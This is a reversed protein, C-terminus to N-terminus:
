RETAFYILALAPFTLGVLSAETWGGHAFAIGSVLSGFAGGAFFVALYLGNLRGRAEPGLAFIERQGVVLNAAVGMDLILAAAVLLPWSTLLGGVLAIVFAAMGSTLALGTVRRTHGADAARGAFPSVIAGGAGVLAFLGIGVQTFQFRPGELLLPVATWFLSFGGFMAAQYGGRRHLAETRILLPGLSALAARYSMGAPRRRPLKARLLPILLAVAVASAAFISRQGVFHAFFSAAPRSLMIGFLLGGVVNGVMRGRTADSALHGAFPVVVQVASSAIGIVLSAALFVAANPAVFAILLAAVLTALMTLILGRNEVIDGLPVMLVLGTAYGLQTVTVLLGAAAVSMGYDRSVLGVLPQVYYINAVVIGCALALLFTLAAPVRDTDTQADVLSTDRTM